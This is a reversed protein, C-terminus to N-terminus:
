DAKRISLEDFCVQNLESDFNQGTYVLMIPTNM